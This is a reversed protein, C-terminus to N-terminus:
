TSDLESRCGIASWSQRRIGVELNHILDPSRRLVRSGAQAFFQFYLVVKSHRCGGAASTFDFILDAHLLKIRRTRQHCALFQRQLLLGDPVVYEINRYTIRCCSLVTECRHIELDQVARRQGCDPVYDFGADGLVGLLADESLLPSEGMERQSLHLFGPHPEPSGQLEIMRIIDGSRSQHVGVERSLIVSGHDAEEGIDADRFLSVGLRQEPDSRAKLLLSVRLLGNGYQFSGQLRAGFFTRQVEGQGLIVATKAFRLLRRLQGRSSLGQKAWVSRLM